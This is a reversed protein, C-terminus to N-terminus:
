VSYIPEFIHRSSKGIPWQIADHLRARYQTSSEDDRKYVETDQCRYGNVKRDDTDIVMRMIHHNTTEPMLSAELKILRQKITM